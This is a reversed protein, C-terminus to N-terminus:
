PDFSAAWDESGFPKSNELSEKLKKEEYLTLPLQETLLKRIDDPYPAPGRDLVISSTLGDNNVRNASGWRWDAANEVLGPKVPNMALYNRVRHLKSGPSVPFAKYRGQYLPGEGVTQTKQRWCRAHMALLWSMFATTQGVESPWLLMHWHNPMLVWELIRMEFKALARNLLLVFNLYDEDSYFMTVREVRRNMAHIVHGYYDHRPKTM